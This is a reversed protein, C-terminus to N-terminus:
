AATAYRDLSNAISHHSGTAATQTSHELVLRGSPRGMGNFPNGSGYSCCNASTACTVAFYKTRLNLLAAFSFILHRVQWLEMVLVCRQGTLVPSVGHLRHSVFMVVDGLEFTHEDYSLVDDSAASSSVAATTDSTTSSAAAAAATTSASRQPTRFRGGTFDGNVPDSLMVDVTVLSGTDRHSPDILAGNPEVTFYLVLLM